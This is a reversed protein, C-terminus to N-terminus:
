LGDENKLNEYNKLNDETKLNDENQLDDENKFNDESKLILIGRDINNILRSKPMLQDSFHTQVSGLHYPLVMVMGLITVM